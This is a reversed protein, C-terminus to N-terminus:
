GWRTQKSKERKVVCSSKRKDDSGCGLRGDAMVMVGGMTDM